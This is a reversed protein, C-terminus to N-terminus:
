ERAAFLKARVSDLLARAEDIAVGALRAAEELTSAVRLHWHKGEFNPGRDLGWYSRAVVFEGPDLLEEVEARDWVYFKGEEHESDADLSSYYGGEPSQMERMMWGATEEVCRKFTESGSTLWADALLGLLPGNDYLMKEFHPIMWQADTSYRCFGGGLHDYIGGE